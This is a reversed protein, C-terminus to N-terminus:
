DDVERSWKIKGTPGVPIESEEFYPRLAAKQWETLFKEWYIAWEKKGLLSMSIKVWGASLLMDDVRLIRIREGESLLTASGGLKLVLEEAVATHEFYDCVTLEGTPSLWGTNLQTM